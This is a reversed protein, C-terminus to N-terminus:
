DNNVKRKKMSGFFAKSFYDNIKSAAMLEANCQPCIYSKYNEFDFMKGCRKCKEEVM